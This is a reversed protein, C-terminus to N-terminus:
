YQKIVALIDSVNQAQFIKQMDEQEAFLAALQTLMEVHSSNDHAALTTILYVPDNEASNFKIGQKVLLMSLGLKNVGQEPRAHPMAIGPAIVYYPGITEHLHYIAQIYDPSIIGAQLLPDASISIAQKWDAVSDIINVTQQTLWESLM